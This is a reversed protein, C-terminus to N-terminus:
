ESRLSDVPKYSALHFAHYSVTLLATFLGLVAAMVLVEWSFSIRYAFNNLWRSIAWSGLPLAILISIGM